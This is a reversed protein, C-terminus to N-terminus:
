IFKGHVHIQIPREVRSIQPDSHQQQTEVEGFWWLNLPQPSNRALLIQAIRPKGGAIKSVHCPKGPSWSESRVRVMPKLLSLYISGVLFSPYGRVIVLM